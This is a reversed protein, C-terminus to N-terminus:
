PPMAFEATVGKAYLAIRVRVAFPSHVVQYLKMIVQTEWINVSGVLAYAWCGFPRADSYGPV